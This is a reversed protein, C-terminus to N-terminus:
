MQTRTYDLEAYIEDDEAYLAVKGGSCSMELRGIYGFSNRALVVDSVLKGLVQPWPATDSVDVAVFSTTSGDGEAIATVGELPESLAEVVVDDGSPGPRLRLWMGEDTLLVCMGVGDLARDVELLHLDSPHVIRIVRLLTNNLLGTQIEKANLQRM